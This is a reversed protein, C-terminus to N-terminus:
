LIIGFNMKASKNLSSTKYLMARAMDFYAFPYPFLSECRDLIDQPSEYLHLESLIDCYWNNYKNIIKQIQQALVIASVSKASIAYTHVSKPLIGSTGISIIHAFSYKSLLHQHKQSVIYLTNKDPDNCILKETCVCVERIDFSFDDSQILEIKSNLEKIITYISINM